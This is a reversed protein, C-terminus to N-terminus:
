KVFIMKKTGTFDGANITYFYIGSPLSNANFVVEKLGPQQVENVLTAVDRGLIDYVKLLVHGQKVINYSIKTSPNFPNPYNQSLSYEKLINQNNAIGIPALGTLRRFVQFNRSAPATQQNGNFSAPGVVPDKMYTINLQYSGGQNGRNWFSVSPYAEDINPTNTIRFPNSWTAGQDLSYQCFIDRQNFGTSAIDPMVVSYVCYLTSGDASWGMAPFDVNFVFAMAMNFTTAAGLQSATAITYVNGDSRRMILKGSSYLGDAAIPFALFWMDTGPKYIFGSGGATAITDDGNNETYPAFVPTVLGWSGGNDTSTRAFIKSNGLTDNQLVPAAIVTVRGAGNTALHFRMNSGVSGNFNTSTIYVPTRASLVTGNWFSYYLTEPPNTSSVNRRSVLGVNGNNYVSIQPWIGFPSTSPNPHGYQTFSGAQPVVDVYLNADLRGGVAESHNSIVAASNRLNLVPYGSRIADPVEISTSWTQGGDTSFSYETRRSTAGTHDLTDATVDVVNVSDPHSPDVQIYVNAEGNSKYDYFGSIGTLIEPGIVLSDTSFGQDLSPRFVDPDKNFNYVRFNTNTFADQQAINRDIRTLNGENSKDGSIIVLNVTYLLAFLLVIKAKM